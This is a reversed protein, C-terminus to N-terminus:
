VPLGLGQWALEAAGILNVEAGLLAPLVPTEKLPPVARDKVTDRVRKFYIEGIQAVGGGVVVMEPNLVTLLSAIGLGLYMAAEDIVSLALTDGNTALRAIEQLDVEPAAADLETSGFNSSLSRFRALIGSASACAELCGWMGCSCPRRASEDVVIHGLRGAFGSSGRYIKRDIVIGGGVGTGVTFSLVSEHGRGAGWITEALAMVNGDNDVYAPYRLAEELRDRIRIGKWGPLTNTSYSISGSEQDVDGATAVGIASPIPGDSKKALELVKHALLIIREMIAEGGEHAKTAESCFHSVKLDPTVVAAAMKTGGIDVALIPNRRM